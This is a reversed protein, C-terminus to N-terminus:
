KEKEKFPLANYFGVQIQTRSSSTLIQTMAGLELRLFDTFCYGVAAYVRDRDYKWKSTNIFIENYVSLYIANKKMEPQNLPINFLLFYRFRTSFLDGIFREEFRLRHQTFFRGYNAKYIYQQFIRHEQTEVKTGGIYPQSLIFGYGLLVNNNKETLNYGIGTRILLQELDGIANFNRYQIENHWNFKNNIKQNGFYMLWNGVRSDQAASSFSFALLTLLCLFFRVSRM